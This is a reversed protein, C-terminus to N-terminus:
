AQWEEDSAAACRAADEPSRAAPATCWRATEAARSPARPGASRLLGSLVRLVLFQSVALGLVALSLLIDIWGSM